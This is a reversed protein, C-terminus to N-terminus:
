WRHYSRYPTYRYAEHYGYWYAPAPPQYYARTYGNPGTYSVCGALSAILILITFLKKMM